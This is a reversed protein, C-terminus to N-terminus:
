SASQCSSWRRQRGSRFCCSGSETQCCCLPVKREGVKDQAGNQRLQFTFKKLVPLRMVAQAAALGSVHLQEFMFDTAAQERGIAGSHCRLQAGAKTCERQRFLAATCQLGSGNAAAAHM